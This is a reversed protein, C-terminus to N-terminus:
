LAETIHESEWKDYIETMLRHWHSGTRSSPSKQGAGAVEVHVGARAVVLARHEWRARLALNWFDPSGKM